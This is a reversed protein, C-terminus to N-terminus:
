NLKSIASSFADDLEHLIKRNLPRIDKVSTSGSEGPDVRLTELKAMMLDLQRDYEGRERQSVTNRKDKLESIRNEWVDIQNKLNDATHGTDPMVTDKRKMGALM